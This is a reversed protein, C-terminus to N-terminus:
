FFQTLLPPPQSLTPQPQETPQQRPQQTPQQTTSSTCMQNQQIHFPLASSPTMATFFNTLLDKGEAEVFFFECCFIAYKEMQEVKPLRHGHQLLSSTLLKEVMKIFCWFRASRMKERKIFCFNETCYTHNNMLHELSMKCARQLTSMEDNMHARISGKLYLSLRNAVYSSVTSESKKKQALSWISGCITKIRHSPDSLFKPEAINEPLDGGHNKGRQSVNPHKVLKRMSSDDDGVIPSFHVTGNMQQNIEVAGKLCCYSEMGKSSGEYNRPCDHPPAIAGTKEAFLCKRCIKSLVYYAVVKKTRGGIFLAHGSPSNYSNGSGRKQWGM